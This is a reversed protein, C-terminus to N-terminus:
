NKCNLLWIDYSPNELSHLAPSQAFMWGSFQIDGGQSIELFAVTKPPETVPQTLCARVTISLVGFHGTKGVPLNFVRTEGTIKDLGSLVAIANKVGEAQVVHPYCLLLLFAVFRGWRVFDTGM